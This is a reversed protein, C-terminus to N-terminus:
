RVVRLVRDWRAFDLLRGKSSKALRDDPPPPVDTRSPERVSFYIIMPMGVVNERPVFGWYRSDRSFTRNDGLVFYNAPPVALEGNLMSRQVISWWHADVGPDTFSSIPFDDRFADEPASTRRQATYPEDLLISNRYVLGRSLHIRDGAAGIVRKVVLEEPNLPFRFVVIDQRVPQRYPLLWRWLGAPSFVAKNVLLFDGVLMTREM